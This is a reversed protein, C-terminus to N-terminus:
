AGQKESRAWFSIWPPAHAEFHRWSGPPASADGIGKEWLGLVRLRNGIVANMITSFSHRFERPGQVRRDTGGASFTWYPDAYAVEGGDVYPSKLLYGDGNWSDWIGHVFPNTCEMRFLGGHRLVRASEGIVARADPVFNIGHALWVVDFSDPAFCSLDRMDGQVTRLELRYHAAALRDKELQTESLDRVTVRAGLLGFAASQQGGSAALCLVDRGKADMPVGEPDIRRLAEAPTLDLWPIGFQVGERSLEEWRDKNFAAIDDLM